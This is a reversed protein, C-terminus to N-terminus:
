CSWQGDVHQLFFKNQMNRSPREREKLGTESLKTQHKVTKTTSIVMDTVDQSGVGPGEFAQSVKNSTEQVDGEQSSHLTEAEEPMFGTVM